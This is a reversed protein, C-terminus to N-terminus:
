RPATLVVVGFGEAPVTVEFSRVESLAGGLKVLVTHRGPSVTKRSVFVWHPLSEWSRTDPKDAVVMTGEVLLAAVTGLASQGSSNGAARAGEAILARAIMRSLAAGIIRPKLHQYEERIESGIDTALEMKGPKGDIELSATRFVSNSDALEPYVVVKFVSRELVMWNGSIFSGAMGVAAGIPIREPVKHPVRGLSVVVLLESPKPGKAADARAGGRERLYSSIRKGRYSGLHSLRGVPELLTDFTRQQLAEDYYRLASDFEGLQESVFGALYSGFVGHAKGPDIEELYNRMVTFRRAEVRANSSDNVALYNLMNFANLSLKETASSQYKAASDSYIYKGIKGAADGSIDLYELEKDAAQFDQSSPKFQSRAQQFTGRELLLLGTEDGYKKPLQNSDDVKLLKNVLEISRDYDGASASTRVEQMRDSYTACGTGALLGCAVLLASLRLWSPRRAGGGPPTLVLRVGPLADVFEPQHV